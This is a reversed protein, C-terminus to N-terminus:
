EEEIIEFDHGVIKILEQKTLKKLPKYCIKSNIEIEKEKTKYNEHQFIMNNVDQFSQFLNNGVTQGSQYLDNGVIQNDQILDGGVEIGATSFTNKVKTHNFYVNGNFKSLDLGRLNLDGDEDVRNNLLWERTEEISKM